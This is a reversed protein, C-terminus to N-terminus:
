DPDTNIMGDKIFDKDHDEPDQYYHYVNTGYWTTEYEKRIPLNRDWKGGMLETIIKDDRAIMNNLKKQIDLIELLQRDVETHWRDHQKTKESVYGLAFFTGPILCFFLVWDYWKWDLEKLIRM